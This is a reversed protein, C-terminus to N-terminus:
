TNHVPDMQSLIAVLPPSKHVRYHLKPNWLNSPLEQTAAAVSKIYKRFTISEFRPRSVSQGATPNVHSEETGAPLNQSILIGRNIWPQKM